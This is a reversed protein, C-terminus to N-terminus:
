RVQFPVAYPSSDGTVSFNLSYTGTGLGKTSLNFIYGGTTGLTPDFRFDNGSNANGSAQAPASLSTATQTVSAAHVTISPSSLDNGNGDCLYFKVPITSGNQAPKAPDYLLCVHYKPGQIVEVSGIDCAPGQPRSVGRQDTTVASGSVDSCYAAPVANIAPSNPLPADTPTLGGNNATPGLLPDPNVIDTAILATGCSDGPNFLQPVNGLINHGLSVLIGNANNCVAETPHSPSALISNKIRVSGSPIYADGIANGRGWGNNSNEFITSFSIDATPKDAACSFGWLFIGGGGFANGTTNYSVTSNILTLDGCANGIGGVGTNQTITSGQVVADGSNLHLGGLTGGTLIIQNLTLKPYAYCSPAGSWTRGSVGLLVFDPTGAVTSRQITAGNGNITVSTRIVPLGVPGPANYESPIEAVSTLTYTGGPALNITTSAACNNNANQIVTALGAVDGDAINFTQAQSIAPMLLFTLGISVIETFKLLLRM